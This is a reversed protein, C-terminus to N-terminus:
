MNTNRDSLKVSVLDYGIAEQIAEAQALIVAERENFAFKEYTYNVTGNTLVVEFLYQRMKVIEWIKVISLIM